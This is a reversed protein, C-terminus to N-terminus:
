GARVPSCGTTCRGSASSSVPASRRRPPRRRADQHSALPFHRFVIRVRDGYQAQLQKLTASARGCYPCQFESFEVITVPAQRPAKAPADGDDIRVRPPDLLVRVGAKERLSKVFAERREDLRKQRLATATQELTRTESESMEWAAHIEADTLAPVKAEIEIRYLAESSTGRAKAERDILMRSILEDLV